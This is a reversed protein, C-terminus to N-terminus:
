RDEWVTVLWTNEACTLKVETNPIPVPPGEGDDVGVINCIEKRFCCCVTHYQLIYLGKQWPNISFNTVRVPNSGMNGAHSAPTKPRKVLPGYSKHAKWNQTQLVSGDKRKRFSMTCWWPSSGHVGQNLTLHEVLQALPANRKHWWFRVTSFRQKLHYVWFQVFPIFFPFPLIFSGDLSVQVLGRGILVALSFMERHKCM